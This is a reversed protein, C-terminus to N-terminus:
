LMERLDLVLEFSGVCLCVAVVFKAEGIKMEVAFVDPGPSDPTAFEKGAYNRGGIYMGVPGACLDDLGASLPADWWGLLATWVSLRVCVALRRVRSGLLWPLSAGLGDVGMVCATGDRVYYPCLAIDMRVVDLSDVVVRVYYEAHADCVM